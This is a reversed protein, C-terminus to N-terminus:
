RPKHYTCTPAIRKLRNSYLYLNLYLYDQKEKWSELAYIADQGKYRIIGNRTWDPSGLQNFVAGGILSGKCHKLDLTQYSRGALNIIENEIMPGGVPIEHKITKRGEYYFVLEEGNKPNNDMDVRYLQFNGMGYTPTGLSEWDEDTWGTTDQNAPVGLSKRFDFEPCKDRYPKLAPDDYSDAKVIPQIYEINTQKKFDDYFTKCIPNDEGLQPVFNVGKM